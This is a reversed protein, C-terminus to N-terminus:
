APEVAGASATPGTRWGHPNLAMAAPSPLLLGAFTSLLLTVAVLTRLGASARIVLPMKTELLHRVGAIGIWDASM